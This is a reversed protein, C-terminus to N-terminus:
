TPGATVLVHDGVLDRKPWVLGSAAEIIDAVEPFRGTGSLGSALEGRGPEMVTAGRARLAAVHGQVTPHQWMEGDMAPAFLLPARAALLVTGLFDDALSLAARALANATAPAVVVLDAREALTVHEVAAPEQPDFLGSLM